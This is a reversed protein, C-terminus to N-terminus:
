EALDLDHLRHLHGIATFYLAVRLVTPAIARLTDRYRLMQPRYTASERALFQELDEGSDPRGTKYDILWREGTAADLFTRDIVIDEVRGEGDVRTLAWESRADPHASSLIWRGPGDVALANKVSTDVARM